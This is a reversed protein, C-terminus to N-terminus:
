GPSTALPRNSYLTLSSIWGPRRSYIRPLPLDLRHRAFPRARILEDCRAQCYVIIVQCGSADVTRQINDLVREFVVQDFPNFFYLVLNTAPLEFGAADACVARVDHCKPEGSKEFIRINREAVAHLKESFEIGTVKRFPWRSAMLVARGKGSGFDFFEFDRHAIPLSEMAFTFYRSPTPEYFVGHEVNSGEVGLSALHTLGGTDVGYRYDFLRDVRWLVADLVRGMM